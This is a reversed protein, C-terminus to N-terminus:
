PTAPSGAKASYVFQRVEAREKDVQALHQARLKQYVALEKRALDRRGIHVYDMGLRYHADSLGPDLALAREYQPISQNYAHGEDYFDGLQVHADAFAPDLAISKKLLTEVTGREVAAGAIRKAKWLSVAYYYQARANKPQEEAYRRFRDTVPAALDPSDDYAKSLFLYCRADSPDLDAARLLAKVADDYRGRGYLALGLGVFFRPATPYRQTADQFITIAPDYTRHLLMESGWDFLNDETPDMHAATEYENAADIFEGQKENVQALLNHLEAADKKKELEGIVQRAEELRGLLFDAMALDYGNDYDEPKTRWARALLPQAKSVAGSSAYLEGLDHNANYNGPELHLAQRFQEGAAQGQGSDLLIAGLNTRAAASDPKLQVAIQLQTLAMAKNSLAAYSLGLLEHVEFSRASWPLVAELRRAAEAYRGGNYDVDAAKYAAEATPQHVSQACLNAAGGCMALVVPWGRRFKRSM